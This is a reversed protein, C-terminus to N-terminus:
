WHDVGRNQEQGSAQPQYSSVIVCVSKGMMSEVERGGRGGAIFQECLLGSIARVKERWIHQRSYFNSSLPWISETSITNCSSGGESGWTITEGIHGPPALCFVLFARSYQQCSSTLKTLGGGGRRSLM